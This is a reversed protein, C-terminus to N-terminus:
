GDPLLPQGVTRIIRQFLEYFHSYAKKFKGIPLAAKGEGFRFHCPNNIKTFFLWFTHQCSARFIKWYFKYLICM